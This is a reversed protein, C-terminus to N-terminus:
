KVTLYQVSFLEAPDIWVTDVKLGASDALLEFDELSYKYAYETLIREEKQFRIEVGDLTIAQEMRSVLHMEIRSEIPNFFAMHKFQELDFNGGLERNIRVLLNLNFERTLGKTDNYAAELRPVPKRLDVGILLGGQVGCQQAIGRLLRRADRPEFNGIASGPFYIVSRAAATLAPPIQFDSTFDMHMSHIPLEPHAKQLATVTRALSAQSVDVPVYGAPQKLHGLLLWTRSSNGSGYEVLLVGSGLKACIDGMRDTMIALEVRTLYYEPLECIKSFLDVGRRDYFYKCPINKHVRHFGQLVQEKFAVTTLSPDLFDFM